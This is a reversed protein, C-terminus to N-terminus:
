LTLVLIGMIKTGFYRYNLVLIYGKSIIETGFYLGYMYKLLPLICDMVYLKLVLIYNM